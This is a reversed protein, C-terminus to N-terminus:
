RFAATPPGSDYQLTVLTGCTAGRERVSVVGFRCACSFVVTSTRSCPRAKVNPPGVPKGLAASATAM